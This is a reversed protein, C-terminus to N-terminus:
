DKDKISVVRYGDKILKVIKDRGEQTKDSVTVKHMVNPCPVLSLGAIRLCIEGEVPDNLDCLEQRYFTM